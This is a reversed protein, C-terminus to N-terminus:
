ATRIIVRSGGAKLTTSVAGSSGHWLELDGSVTVVITGEVVMLVNSNITVFGTNGMNPATTSYATQPNSEHIQGTNAGVDDAIGTNAATGTSTYRLEFARVAATGTFNIGLRIGSTNAVAAQAILHYSFWYTGAELTANSFQTVETATASSIAHDGSMASVRPMGLTQLLTILQANTEKQTVGGATVAFADTTAASSVASMNGISLDGM